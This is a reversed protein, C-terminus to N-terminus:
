KMILLIELNIENISMNFNKIFYLIEFYALFLIKQM